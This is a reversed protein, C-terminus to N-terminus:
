RWNWIGSHAPVNERSLKTKALEVIIEVVLEEEIQNLERKKRKTINPKSRENYPDNCDIKQYTYLANLPEKYNEREIKIIEMNGGWEGCEDDSYSIWIPQFEIYKLVSYDRESNSTQDKLNKDMNRGIMLGIILTVIPITVQLLKKM